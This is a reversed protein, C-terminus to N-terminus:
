CGLWITDLLAVAPLAPNLPGVLQRVVQTCYAAIHTHPLWARLSHEARSFPAATRVLAYVWGSPALRRGAVFRLLLEHHPLMGASTVAGPALAQVARYYIWPESYLRVIPPQQLADHVELQWDILRLGVSGLAAQVQPTQM